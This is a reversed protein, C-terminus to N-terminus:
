VLWLRRADVGGVQSEVRTRHFDLGCDEVHVTGQDVGHVQVRLSPLADEGLVALVDGVALNAGLDALARVREQGGEEVLGLAGLDLLLDGLAAGRKEGVLVEVLYLGERLHTFEELPQVGGADLDGQRRGAVRFLDLVVLGQEVDGFQHVCYLNFTEVVGDWAVEGRFLEVVSESAFHVAKCRHMTEIAEKLKAIRESM